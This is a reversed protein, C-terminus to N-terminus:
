FSVNIGLTYAPQPRLSGLPFEPDENYRNNSIVFLNNAQAYVRASSLGITQLLNRNINYTVNLEQFRIHGANQVRYDLYPYFRDWFYYRPEAKDFPIPVRDMPDSNLIESYLRNPLASGGSMSPYNFTFGNFVHGFKGTVIFSVDFDYIKFSNVLGLTYPAVKTGMDLMYDRGDGPTWGTFDYIEDDKGQVIPQWNPESESGRNEVGAYEFSWLTNANHGQVYASTGGSYLENASYTAKYLNDINNFNYSFNV